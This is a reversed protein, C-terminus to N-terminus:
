AVEDITYDIGQPALHGEAHAAAAELTPYVGLSKGDVMVHFGPTRTEVPEIEVPEVPKNIDPEVPKNIDDINNSPM